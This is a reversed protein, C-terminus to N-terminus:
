QIKIQDPETVVIEPKGNYNTIVGTVCITKDKFAMEPAFSFKHADKRRIVVSLKQNPYEGGLNLFVMGSNEMQKTSYVKDCFRTVKGNTGASKDSAGAPAAVAPSDGVLGNKFIENLVGALRIGGQQIRGGIIAIHSKYYADGVSRDKMADVEAYLKSSIEYSEWIWKILPDSQWQQIQQPSVHDYGQALQEYSRGTHELLYTDWLSHLNTGNGEYNLQITNGGKDEARSIHMPQHLDGVLHIVFKLAVIKQARTTNKDTLEQECQHLASYVNSESMGEVKKQFEPYSLGLPLNLFHWPATLRYEPSSRVEDAWPAVDAMSENGLLEQVAAKAKPTLHNEAIKAITRHGTVGWSILVISFLTLAIVAFLKRKQM